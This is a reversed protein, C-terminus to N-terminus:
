RVVVGITVALAWFFLGLALLNSRPTSIGLGALLLCIIALLMFVGNLIIM